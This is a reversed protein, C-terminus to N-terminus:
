RNDGSGHLKNRLKRDALKKINWNAIEEITLEYKNAITDLVAFIGIFGKKFNSLKLLLAQKTLLIILEKDTLLLLKHNNIVPFYKHYVYKNHLNCLEVTYWLVDGAEPIINEKTAPLKDRIVRKYKGALEGIESLLGLVLYDENFCNDLCTKHSRKRYENFHM